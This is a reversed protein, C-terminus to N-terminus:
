KGNILSPQKPVYELIRDTVCQVYANTEKDQSIKQEQKMQEFSQAGLQSMQSDSFLIVQNRGTPSKACGFLGAVVLALSLIKAFKM